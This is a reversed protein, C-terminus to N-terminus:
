VVTAILILVLTFFVLPALLILWGAPRGLNITWGIGVRKEVFLSPDAPNVYFLGGKWFRDNGNDLTDRTGKGIKVSIFVIVAVFVVPLLLIYPVIKQPEIALIIACQILTFMVLLVLTAAHLLIAHFRRFPANRGGSCDPGASDTHLESRIIAEHVCSLIFTLLMQIANPLFVSGVTKASSRELEGAANYHMPLVDPIRDYYIAVAIVNIAIYLFPLIYWWRSVTRKRRFSSEM